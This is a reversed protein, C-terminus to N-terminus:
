PWNRGRPKNKAGKASVIEKEMYLDYAEMFLPRFIDSRAVISCRICFHPSTLFSTLLGHYCDERGGEGRLCICCFGEWGWGGKEGLPFGGGGGGERGARRM